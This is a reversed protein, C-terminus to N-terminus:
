EDRVVKIKDFLSTFLELIERRLEKKWRGSEVATLKRVSESFRGFTEKFVKM